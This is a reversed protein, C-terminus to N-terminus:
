QFELIKFPRASKSSESEAYHTYRPRYAFNVAIPLVEASLRILTQRLSRIEFLIEYFLSWVQFIHLIFHGVGHINIESDEISALGQASTLTHAEFEEM